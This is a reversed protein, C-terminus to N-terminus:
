GRNAGVDFVLRPAVVVSERGEKALCLSKCEHCVFATRTLPVVFSACSTQGRTTLM